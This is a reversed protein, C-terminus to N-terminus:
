GGLTVGKAVGLSSVHFADSEGCQNEGGKGAHGLDGDLIGPHAGGDRRLLGGAGEHLDGRRLVRAQDFGTRRGGAHDLGLRDLAGELSALNGADYDILTIPASPSM